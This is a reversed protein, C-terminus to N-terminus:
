PMKAPPNSLFDDILSDLEKKNALLKDADEKSKIGHKLAFGKSDKVSRMKLYENLSPPNDAPVHNNKTKQKAEVKSDLDEESTINLMSSIQYRRLYTIIAGVSQANNMGQLKQFEVGGAGQIWEGSSHLLRTTVTILQNENGNTQIVSMGEKELIPRAMSLTSELTAYKYGYGQKDKQLDKLQGQVKCLAKAINGLESSTTM